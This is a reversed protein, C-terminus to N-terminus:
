RQCGDLDNFSENWAREIRYKALDHHCGATTGVASWSKRTVRSAILLIIDVQHSIATRGSLIFDTTLPDDDGRSLATFSDPM